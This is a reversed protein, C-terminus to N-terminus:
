SPCPGNKSCWHYSSIFSTHSRGPLTKKEVKPNDARALIYLNPNLEKATLVVYINQADEGLSTILHKAKDIGAKLLIEESTADGELCLINKEQLEKIITPNKEIILIPFSDKIFEYIHKGIRGYGCLICHDKLQAIKKQLKKEWVSEITKTVLVESFLALVYFFFGVGGLSLFITFIKGKESLPIHEEYGITTITIVVMFLSDLFNGGEIVMYGLTGGFILFTLWFFGIFIHRSYEM